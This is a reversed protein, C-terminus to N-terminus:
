IHRIKGYLEKLHDNSMDLIPEYMFSNLHINEPTMLNVLECLKINASETPSGKHEGKFKNFLTGTQSGKIPSKDTIKSWMLTEAKLRIGISLSIKNELNLSDDNQLGYLIESVEFIIDLIKKDQPYSSLDVENITDKYITQIDSVTISATDSKIHLLSTLKMYNNSSKGERYEVLNRIFPITAVLVIPDSLKTRWLEFPNTTTKNGGSTLKIQDIHKQAIFSNKRQSTGGIVRSQITRFFDFNHTLVIQSFIATESIESIYEVIAYKNKYDFSDAIDDIIFITEINSKKRARIEFIINLLYLARSEGQSLVKLLNENDIDIKENQNVDNFVFKINPAESKLIVDDQNQIELTFPVTFRDNFISIVDLWETEEDKAKKIVEEIATKSIKYQKLLSNFLSKQEVLYSIWIEKSFQAINSLEPLINKNDLLYDRFERLQATTLKKEIEDFKTKITDDNLVTNIEQSIITQLDDENNITQSKKDTNNHLNLSHNAKFFGNSKLNKQIDSVNYHNFGKQLFKSSQILTDYREIYETIDKKFQKTNLFTLIKDEFIKSYIINSFPHEDTTNIQNELNLLLDFFNDQDFAKLFEQEILNGRGTLGSLQKLKSFFALKEEEILKLSAEYNEKLDKNVLLTTIKESKYNQIYPKIVFINEAPIATDNQDNIVTKTARGKFVEDTSNISKSYDDLTKAFSTKMTGNPAYISVVNKESFDFTHELKRIGYCNELDIKLKQIKPTM